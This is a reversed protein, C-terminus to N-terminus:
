WGGLLIRVEESAMTRFDWPPDWVLEVSAENVGETRLAAQRVMEVIYGAMPCMPTTLTMRVVARRGDDHMTVGYILGLDTMPMGLEPEIVTKLQEMVQETTAM